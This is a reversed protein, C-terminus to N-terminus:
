EFDIWYRYKRKSNKYWIFSNCLKKGVFQAYPKFQSYKITHLLFGCM